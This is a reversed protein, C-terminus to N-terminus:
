GKSRQEVTGSIVLQGGGIRRVDSRRICLDTLVAEVDRLVAEAVDEPARLEFTGPADLDFSWQPEAAVDDPAAAGLTLSLGFPDFTEDLGTLESYRDLLSEPISYLETRDGTRADVSWLRVVDSAILREVFSLFSNLSLKHALRRDLWRYSSYLPSEAIGVLDLLLLEVTTM